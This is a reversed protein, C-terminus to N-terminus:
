KIVRLFPHPRSHLSKRRKVPSRRLRGKTTEDLRVNVCVGLRREGKRTTRLWRRDKDRVEVLLQDLDLDMMRIIVGNAIDATVGMPLLSFVAGVLEVAHTNCPKTGPEDAIKTFLAAIISTDAQGCCPCKDADPALMDFLTYEDVCHYIERVVLNVFDAIAAPYQKIQGTSQLREALFRYLEYETTIVADTM